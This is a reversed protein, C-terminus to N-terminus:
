CFVLVMNAAHLLIDRAEVSRLRPIAFPAQTFSGHPRLKHRSTSVVRAGAHFDLVSFVTGIISEERTHDLILLINRQRFAKRLDNVNPPHSCSDLWGRKKAISSLTELVRQDYTFPKSFLM